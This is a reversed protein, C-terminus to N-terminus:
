LRKFTGPAAELVYQAPKDPTIMPCDFQTCPQANEKVYVVKYNKDLWIIDIPFLMSKMWFPYFGEKPFVFLMGENNALSKRGSLGQEMAVPTSVQEVNLTLHDLTFIM